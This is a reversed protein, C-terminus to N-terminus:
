YLLWDVLQYLNDVVRRPAYQDFENASTVGSLIAVFPVNGRRATEADIVSDGVYLTRTSPVGLREIAMRLGESDPKHRTVDEGGVVIDFIDSMNERSLLAEIRYRFKTSVIGLVIGNRKLQM